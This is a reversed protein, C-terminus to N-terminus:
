AVVTPELEKNESGSLITFDFKPVPDGCGALPLAGLIAIMILRLLRFVSM